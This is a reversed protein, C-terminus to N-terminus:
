IYCFVFYMLIIIVLATKEIPTESYGPSHKDTDLLFSKQLAHLSSIPSFLLTTILLMLDVLCLNPLSHNTFFSAVPCSLKISYHTMRLSYYTPFESYFIKPIILEPRSNPVAKFGM